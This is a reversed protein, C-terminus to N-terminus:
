SAYVVHPIVTTQDDNPDSCHACRCVTMMIGTHIRCTLASPAAIIQCTLEVHAQKCAPTLLIGDQTGTGMLMSQIGAM